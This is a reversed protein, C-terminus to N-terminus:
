AAAAESVLSWSHKRRGPVPKSVAKGDKRMDVMTGKVSFYTMGKSELADTMEDLSATGHEQLYATVHEAREQFPLGNAEPSDRFAKTLLARVAEEDGLINRMHRSGEELFTEDGSLMGDAIALAREVVPQADDVLTLSSRYPATDVNKGIHGDEVLTNMRGIATTRRSRQDFGADPYRGHLTEIFENLTPQRKGEAILHRITDYVMEKVEFGGADLDFVEPLEYALHDAYDSSDIGEYTVIGYRDLWKLNSAVTKHGMDLVHALESPHWDDGALLERFIRLRDLPPLSEKDGLTRAMGYLARLSIDGAELSMALVHGAYAKGERNGFETVKYGLGPIRIVCDAPILTYDCYEMQTSTSGTFVPEEGQPALFLERHLETQSYIAGTTMGGLVIAKAEQTGVPM